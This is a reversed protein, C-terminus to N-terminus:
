SATLVADSLPPWADIAWEGFDRDTLAVCARGAVPDVWIFTGTQGFHGFTSPSNTAGTWHPHKSGRIEFGLGWLNPRQQGYGPLVGDLDPRHPQTARQWTEAALLTPRLWEQAVVLLDDVTSTAARAPSGDLTTATLGLPVALAEHFYEAAAMGSQAALLDGLVDFGANSYIRRQGVSTMPRAPDEALGSNHALLDAVTAGAPGAAMDFDLTGEEIAILVTYAFLPKTVSALRFRRDTPGHRTSRGATDVWGAAATPVPWADIAGLATM